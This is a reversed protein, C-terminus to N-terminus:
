RAPDFEISIGLPQKRKTATKRTLIIELMLLFSSFNLMSTSTQAGATKRQCNKKNGQNSPPPNKAKM